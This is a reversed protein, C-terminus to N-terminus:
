LELRVIRYRVADLLPEIATVRDRDIQRVDESLEAWPLLDPHHRRAEDRVPGHTWGQRQRRRMWRDHEAIALREVVAPTFPVTPADSADPPVAMLGAGALQVALEDVADYSLERGEPGLEDWPVLNAHDHLEAGRQLRDAVYQEHMLQALRKRAPLEVIKLGARALISPRVRILHRDQDRANEDLEDWPLLLNHLKRANDRKPAYKWGDGRRQAMWRDHELVAMTEVQTESLQMQPADWDTETDIALFVSELQREMGDVHARNQERMEPSLTDWPRDAPRTGEDEEDARDEIYSAHVEQAMAERASDNLLDVSNAELTLPVLYVGPVGSLLLPTLGITWASAPVYVDAGDDGLLTRAQIAIALNEADDALCPYLAARRDDGDRLAEVFTATETASMDGTAITAIDSHTGIAPYQRRLNAVVADADPAALVLQQKTAEAGRRIRKRCHYHWARAARLFTAQGLPTSGVVVILPPAPAFEDRRGLPGLRVLARAWIADANFFHLRVHQMRRRLERGRLVFALQPNAIHVYVDPPERRRDADRCMREVAAAIAANAADDHCACVVQAAHGARVRRLMAASTADGGLVLAKRAKLDVAADGHADLDVCTVKKGAQLRSRAARLGKEGLGCVVVHDSRSRAQLVVFQRGYFGLVIGITVSLSVVAALYQGVGLTISDGHDDPAPFSSPFMHLATGAAGWDHGAGFFALVAATIALITLVIGLWPRWAIATTTRLAADHHEAEILHAVKVGHTDAQTRGQARGKTAAQVAAQRADPAPVAPLPKPSM